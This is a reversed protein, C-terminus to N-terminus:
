QLLDPTILPQADSTVKPLEGNWKEIMMKTLIQQTLSQSEIQNAQAQLEFEKIKLEALKVKNEAEVILQQQRSKEAEVKQEAIKKEEVATEYADSFDHNTISVNTLTLGYPELESKLEEFIDSALKGRQSVFEEITYKAVNTQVADRIRPVLLSRVHNGTFARYLKMPDSVIDSVTLEIIVSQLDKTSVEIPSNEEGVGFKITQERVTMTEKTQIFPIKFNLGEDKIETVKGLTKIIAVEGTNVIFGSNIGAFVILVVIILGIVSKSLRNLAEKFKNQYSLSTKWGKLRLWYVM